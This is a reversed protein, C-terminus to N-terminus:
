SFSPNVSYAIPAPPYGCIFSTNQDEPGSNKKITGDLEIWRHARCFPSCAPVITERSVCNPYRFRERHIGMKM